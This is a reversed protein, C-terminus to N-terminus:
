KNNKFFALFIVKGRGIRGLGAIGAFCLEVIAQVISM